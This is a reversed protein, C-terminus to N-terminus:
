AMVWREDIVAMDGGFALERRILVEAAGAPSERISVADWGEPPEWGAATLGDALDGGARARVIRGAGDVTLVLASPRRTGKIVGAGVIAGGCVVCAVGHVADPEWAALARRWGDLGFWTKMRGAPAPLVVEVCIDPSALAVLAERDCSRLAPLVDM